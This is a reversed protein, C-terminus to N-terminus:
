DANLVWVGAPGKTQHASGTFNICFTLVEEGQPLGREQLTHLLQSLTLESPLSKDSFVPPWTHITIHATTQSFPALNM